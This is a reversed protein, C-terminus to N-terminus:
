EEKEWEIESCIIDGFGVVEREKPWSVKSFLDLTYIGSATVDLLKNPNDAPSATLTVSYDGRGASYPGNPGSFSIAVKKVPSWSSAAGGVEGEPDYYPAIIFKGKKSGVDPIKGKVKLLAKLESESLRLGRYIDGKKWPVVHKSYKRSALLNIWENSTGEDVPESRGILRDRLSMILRNELETDPEKSKVDPRQEGWAIKGLPGGNPEDAEKDINNMFKEIGDINLPLVKAVLKAEETAVKSGVTEAYAMLISSVDSADFEMGTVAKWQEIKYKCFWAYNSAKIVKKNGGGVAAGGIKAPIVKDSGDVKYRRFKKQAHELGTPTEMFNVLAPSSDLTTQIEAAIVALPGKLASKEVKKSKTKVVPRVESLIDRIVQRLKNIQMKM